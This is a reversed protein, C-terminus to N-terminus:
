DEVRLHAFVKCLIIQKGQNPTRSLYQMASKNNSSKKNYKSQMSNLSDIYIVWKKDERKHIEKLKIKNRYNRSCSYERKLNYKANKLM